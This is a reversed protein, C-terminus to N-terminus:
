MRSDFVEDLVDLHYTRLDGLDPDSFEGVKIGYDGSLWVARQELAYIEGVDVKLGRLSCYGAITFYNVPRKEIITAFRKIVEEHDALKFRIEKMSQLSAIIIDEICTLQKEM